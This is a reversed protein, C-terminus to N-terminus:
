EIAREKQQISGKLGKSFLLLPYLTCLSLFTLASLCFTSVIPCVLAICHLLVSFPIFLSHFSCTLYCSPHNPSLTLSFFLQTLSFHFTFVATITFILSLYYYSPLFLSFFSNTSILSPFFLFFPHPHHPSPSQATRKCRELSVARANACQNM